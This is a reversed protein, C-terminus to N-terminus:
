IYCYIVKFENPMDKCFISPEITEKIKLIRKIEDKYSQSIIKDKNFSSTNNDKSINYEKLNQPPEWPLKGKFFFVLCNFIAEIDDRRSQSNGRTSNVSSYYQTGILGYKEIFPLHSNDKSVYPGALGFDILILNNKAISQYDSFNLWVINKPKIDRHIFGINHLDEIANILEIGIYSITKICFKRKCFNYLTELNPGLLSQVCIKDAFSFYYIKPSLSLTEYDKCLCCEFDVKIEDSKESYLKVAVEQKTKTNLGYYVNGYSGKGLEFNKFYIFNNKPIKIANNSIEDKVVNNNIFGIKNNTNQKVYNKNNKQKLNRKNKSIILIFTKCKKLHQNIRIVKKNCYKCISEPNHNDRMHRKMRRRDKYQKNCITCKPM